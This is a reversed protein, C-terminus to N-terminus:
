VAIDVLIPNLIRVVEDPTIEALLGRKGANIFIRPCDVISREMHVLLKKRSGFPSIGGVQYGTHRQATESSCPSVSKVGLFRALNKTSVERDGHMLVILPARSDTEFVLTKIVDHEAAGLERAAITTGGRDEYAYEHITYVAANEKLVRIAQTM